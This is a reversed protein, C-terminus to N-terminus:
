LHQTHNSRVIYIYTHVCMYIIRGRDQYTRHIIQVYWIQRYDRYIHAYTRVYIHDSGQNRLHRTKNSRVIYDRYIRIYTRVYIHDSGQRRLHPTDATLGLGQICTCLIEILFINVYIHININICIYIYIYIYISIYIYICIYTYKCKYIYVYIYIYIYTKMSYGIFTTNTYTGTTRNVALWDHVYM